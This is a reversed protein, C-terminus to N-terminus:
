NAVDTRRGLRFLELQNEVVESAEQTVDVEMEEVGPELIWKLTHFDNVDENFGGQRVYDEYDDEEPDEEMADVTDGHNEEEERKDDMQVIARAAAQKQEFKVFAYDQVDMLRLPITLEIPPRDDQDATPQSLRRDTPSIRPRGAKNVTLRRDTLM